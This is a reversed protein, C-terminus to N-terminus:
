FGLSALLDDVESQSTVVDVANEPDVVPGQLRPTPTSALAPTEAIATAAL